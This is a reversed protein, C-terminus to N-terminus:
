WFCSGGCVSTAAQLEEFSAHGPQETPPAVDPNVALLRSLTNVLMNNNGSIYQFEINYMELKIVWNNVKVNLMSQTLFM